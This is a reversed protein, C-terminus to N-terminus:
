APSGGSDETIGDATHILEGRGAVVIYINDSDDYGVSESLDYEKDSQYFVWYVVLRGAKIAALVDAFGAETTYEYGGGDATAATVPVVFVDGGGSPTAKGWVGEVVTLVDGNDTASVAPLEATAASEIGDEMHNLKEATVVDGSAWTQKTYSM